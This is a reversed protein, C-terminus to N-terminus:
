AWKVSEPIKHELGYLHRIIQGEHMVEHEALTILLAERAKTWVTVNNIAELVEISSSSVKDKFSNHSFDQLSCNFGMWSGAEIARAYSERAGIVCWLHEGLSKHKLIDLKKGLENDNTESTLDNYSEFRSTLSDVLLERM